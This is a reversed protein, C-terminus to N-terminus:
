KSPPLILPTLPKLLNKYHTKKFIKLPYFSFKSSYEGRQVLGQVDINVVTQSKNPKANISATM